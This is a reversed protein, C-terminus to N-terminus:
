KENNNEVIITEVKGEKFLYIKKPLYGADVIAKTLAKQDVIKGEKYAIIALQNQADLAVGRHLQKRNVFKLKRLKIKIGIACSPCILGHTYVIAVNKEKKFTENVAELRAKETVVKFHIGTAYSSSIFVLSIVLSLIKTQYKM